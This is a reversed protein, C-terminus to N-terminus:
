FGGRCASPSRRLRHLPTATDIGRVQETQTVVIASFCITAGANVLDQCLGQELAGWFWTPFMHRHRSKCVNCRRPCRCAIADRVRDGHRAATRAHIEGIQQTLGFDFGAHVGGRARRCRGRGAKVLEDVLAPQRDDVLMAALIAEAPRGIRDALAAIAAIIHRVRFQALLYEVQALMGFGRRHHRRFMGGVVLGKQFLAKAALGLRDIEIKGMEQPYAARAFEQRDMVARGIGRCGREERRRRAGVTRDEVIAGAM